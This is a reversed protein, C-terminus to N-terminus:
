MRREATKILWQQYLGPNTEKLKRLTCARHEPELKLALDVDELVSRAKSNESVLAFGLIM